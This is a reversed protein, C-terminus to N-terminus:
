SDSEGACANTGGPQEITAPGNKIGAQPVAFAKVKAPDNQPGIPDLNYSGSTSQQGYSKAPPANGAGVDDLAFGKSTMDSEKLLTLGPM